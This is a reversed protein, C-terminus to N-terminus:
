KLIQRNGFAKIRDVIKDVDDMSLSPHLPINLGTENLIESNPLKATSQYLPNLHLPHYRLTTYIGEDFLQKAMEDRRPVRIFYTFYSHRDGRSEDADM